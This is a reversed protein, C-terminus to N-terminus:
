HHLIPMQVTEIKEEFSMSVTDILAQYLNPPYEALRHCLYLYWEKGYPLYVRTRYGRDQMTKLREPTIGQLMEFEILRSDLHYTQISQHAHELLVPNHTAIACSHGSNLLTEMLNCYAASVEAASSCGIDPPEQYAGKVLRIKGPQKLVSVLDETSRYLKAQLTIGVNEFHQCLRQYMELIDNTRESGEMSIMVETGARHAATIIASANEFALNADLALGIHSLDLSVSSVLKEQNIARVVSLFEETVQQVQTASRTSEGMYDITTAFGEQNLIRVTEICQPLTEGGIFRMVAKLLTSYLAESELVYAKIAENRAIQRLTAAARTELTEVTIENMENM